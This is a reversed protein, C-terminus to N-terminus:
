KAESWRPARKQVFAQLGELADSTSMLDRLYLEELEPIRTRYATLIEARLARHAIRLSSASKPVISKEIFGSLDTDLQGPASVHTMLGWQALDQASLREGTLVIRSAITTGVLTPLLAVAAPPFVGLQIEPVAFQAGTEAFLFTCALAVEFGGGLCLGNVKALTPVPCSLITEITKHFRPLMQEVVGPLHEEVSAGYSFHKGRGSLVILKCGPRASAGILAEALQMLTSSTLINAPPSDIIIETIQGDLRTAISLTSQSM